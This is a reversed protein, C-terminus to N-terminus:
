ALRTIEFRRLIQVPLHARNEFIQKDLRVRDRHLRRQGPAPGNGEFNAQRQTLHALWILRTQALRQIIEFFCCSGSGSQCKGTFFTRTQKIPALPLIPWVIRARALSSGFISILPCHSKPSAIPDVILLQSTAISKLWGPAVSSTQEAATFCPLARTMPVVPWEVSCRWNISCVAPDTGTTKADFKLTPTFASKANVRRAASIRPLSKVGCILSVCWVLFFSAGLPVAFVRPSIKLWDPFGSTEMSDIRCPSTTPSCVM